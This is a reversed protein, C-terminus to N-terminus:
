RLSCESVFADAHDTFIKERAATTVRGKEDKVIEAAFWDQVPFHNSNFRFSGRVSEFKAAKLAARFARPDDAKGGTAALASDLLLATDYAQAAYPSPLRKFEREFDEVFRKNPPNDTSPTWFTSTRAGLAQEGIAPLVTQDLVNMEGFLKVQQAHGGQQFQKVFNIGMGGPYFVYVGDPKAARMQALEAAYDLQGFATYVEAVIEGKYFRKFGALKDKGAPYNPAMLYVRKVGQSQMWAGMAESANDNSWSTAFFNEHCRKGALESPGANPSILFVGADLIPKAIALLVNSFVVGTIIRVRDQEVMKDALQRAVDPKTLDDGLVLEVTAGGLKGGRQKLALEFGDKIETGLVAQPGSLTTIMGIKVAQASAPSSCLLGVFSATLSVLAVVRVGLM